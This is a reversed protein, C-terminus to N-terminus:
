NTKNVPLLIKFVAGEGPKSETWVFGNHNEVVKQVISLGVGTGSGNTGGNLRTFVKFIDEAYAQDFGIGNDKLQILHFLKDSQEATL